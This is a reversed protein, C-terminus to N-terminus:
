SSPSDWINFYVEELQSYIASTKSYVVNHHDIAIFVITDKIITYTIVFPNIHLGRVGKLNYKKPVGIEPNDLIKEIKKKVKCEFPKNKRTIKKYNDEFEKTYIVKKIM